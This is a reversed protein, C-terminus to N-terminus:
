LLVDAEKGHIPFIDLRHTFTHVCVRTGSLYFEGYPGKDAKQTPSLAM